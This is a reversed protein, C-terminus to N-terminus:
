GRKPRKIQPPDFARIKPLDGTYKEIKVLCTHATPGQGLASTGVDRTLTNPNGHRCMGAEDPDWWAGTSMQVVGPRIDASITAAGLCAGRDNFLRVIDGEVINRDNADNVNILVPERGHRKASACIGGQDLQSHLKKAPQNTILHLEDAQANGLWEYPDLWVPHGPCDTNGFDAVTQSFVEIKGSPTALRNKIPDARFAQMMTTPRDPAPTKHWGKSQIEEWSPLDLGCAGDAKATQEYLRRTWGAPTLDDTFTSEFGLKAAIRRFIEHDDLAHGPADVAKRMAIVYPDRQSMCIDDREVHTTCPLVIDARRATANWCWDNVVVTEPKAWARELRSLDQHHHYPNGGAWWIMRVDPYTLTQGNFEFRGGPNELMDTIRAVPIFDPVPNKGQPVSAGPMLQYDAGISNTASFGFAVGGGPLGIRGLLAALTIAMWFPQEGHDARTLSWSVSIVTRKEAMERALSRIRDAPIDSIAA